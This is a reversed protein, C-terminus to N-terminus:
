LQEASHLRNIKVDGDKASNNWGQRENSRSNQDAAARAMGVVLAQIFRRCFGLFPGFLDSAVGNVSVIAAPHGTAIFPLQM